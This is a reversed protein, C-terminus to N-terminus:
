IINDSSSDTTESEEIIDDKLADLSILTLDIQRLISDRRSIGRVPAFRNSPLASIKARADYMYKKAKSIRGRLSM